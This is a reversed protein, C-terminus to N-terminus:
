FMNKRNKKETLNSTLHVIWVTPTWFERLATMCHLLFFQRTLRRPHKYKPRLHAFKVLRSFLFFINQNEKQRWGDDYMQTKLAPLSQWTESLLLLAAAGNPCRPTEVLALFTWIFWTLIATLFKPRIKLDNSVLTILVWAKITKELYTIQHQQSPEVASVRARSFSQSPKQTKKQTSTGLSRSTAEGGKKKKAM